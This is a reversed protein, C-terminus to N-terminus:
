SKPEHGALLLVLSTSWCKWNITRYKSTEGDREKNEPNWSQIWFLIPLVYLATNKFYECATANPRYFSNESSYLGSCLKEKKFKVRTSLEKVRDM